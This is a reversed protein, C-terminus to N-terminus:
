KSNLIFMSLVMGIQTFNTEVSTETHWYAEPLGCRKDSDISWIHNDLGVFLCILCFHMM